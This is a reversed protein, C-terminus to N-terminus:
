IAKVWEYIPFANKRKKDYTVYYADELKLEKKAREPAKKEREVEPDHTVCVGYHKKGKSEYVIDVDVDNSYYWAQGFKLFANIVATTELLKGQENRYSLEYVTMLGSDIPYYRKPAMEQEQLSMSYKKLEIILYSEKLYEVYQSITEESIGLARGLKAFSIPKGANTAIWKYLFEVKRRDANYRKVVDREIFDEVYAGLLDLKLADDKFFVEPFGGYRAYENYYRRARAVDEDSAISKLEKFEFFEKLSLPFIEFQMIRGSLYSSYDSKLLKASSGSVFFSVNKKMDYANKLWVEWGRREQAEDIFVYVKGKPNVNELYNLYVEELDLGGLAKDQLNLFLVNEGLGKKCLYDVVQYFLTSKGARRPGVLVKIEKEDVWKLIGVLAERERGKMSESVVGSAWWPNWNKLRQFVGASDM